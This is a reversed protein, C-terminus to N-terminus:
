KRDFFLCLVTTLKQEQCSSTCSSLWLGLAVLPQCLTAATYKLFPDIITPILVKWGACAAISTPTTRITHIHQATSGHSADEGDSM